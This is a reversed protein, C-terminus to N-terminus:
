TFHLVMLRELEINSCALKCNKVFSQLSQGFHDRTLIFYNIGRGKSLITLKGLYLALLFDSADKGICDSIFYYKRNDNICRKTSNKALFLIFITNEKKVLKEDLDINEADVLV